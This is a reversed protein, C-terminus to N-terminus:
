RVGGTENLFKQFLDIFQGIHLGDVLAHHVHIAVPIEGNRMEGFAILPISAKNRQVRAHDMSTFHAGRIVTFYIVANGTYPSVLGTELRVRQNEEIGQRIFEDFNPTYPHISFGFTGDSRQVTGSAHIKDYIVPQDSEIRMRFADIQNAAKTAGFLYALSFPFNKQKAKQYLQSADLKITVSWFPDDYEKFFLFHEKRNWTELDIIRKSM